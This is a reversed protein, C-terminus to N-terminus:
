VELNEIKKKYLNVIRKPLKQSCFEKKRFNKLIILQVFLGSTNNRTQKCIM